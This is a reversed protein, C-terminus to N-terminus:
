LPIGGRVSLGIKGGPGTGYLESIPSDKRDKKHNHVNGSTVMHIILINQASQKICFICNNWINNTHPIRIEMQKSLNKVIMSNQAVIM